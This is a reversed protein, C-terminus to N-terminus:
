KKRELSIKAARFITPKTMYKHPYERGLNPDVAHVMFRNGNRGGKDVLRYLYSTNKGTSLLDGINHVRLSISECAKSLKM